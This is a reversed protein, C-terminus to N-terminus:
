MLLRERSFIEPLLYLLTECFLRASENSDTEVYTKLARQHTTCSLTKSHCRFFLPCAGSRSCTHCVFTWERSSLYFRKAFAEIIDRKQKALVEHSTAYYFKIYALITNLPSNIGDYMFLNVPCRSTMTFHEVHM